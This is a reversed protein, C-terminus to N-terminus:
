IQAVLMVIMDQMIPNESIILKTDTDSL